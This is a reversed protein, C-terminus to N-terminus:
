QNPTTTPIPDSRAVGLDSSNLTTGSPLTVKETAHDIPVLTGSEAISVLDPSNITSSLDIGIRVFKFNDPNNDNKDRVRIVLYDDFGGDKRVQRDIAPQFVKFRDTNGPAVQTFGFESYQNVISAPVDIEGSYAFDAPPINKHTEASNAASNWLKEAEGVVTSGVKDVIGAAPIPGPIEMDTAHHAAGGGVLVAAALIAAKTTGSLESFVRRVTRKVSPKYAHPENKRPVENRPIKRAMMVDSM